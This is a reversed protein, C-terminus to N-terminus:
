KRGKKPIHAGILAAYDPKKVQKFCILFEQEIGRKLDLANDATDIHGRALANRYAIDARSYGWVLDRFDKIAQVAVEGM